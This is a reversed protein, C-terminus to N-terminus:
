GLFSIVVFSIVWVIISLRIKGDVIATRSPDDGENEVFLIQLYRIFGYIVILSTLFLYRSQTSTTYLIYCVIIISSLFVIIYNLFATNYGKISRRRELNKCTSLLESRRKGFALFLSLLFTILFLWESPLIEVVIGGAYIRLIFGSAIVFTDIIPFHKLRLSYILNILFYIFLILFLSRHFFFSIGLSTLFLIIALTIATKVKVKGSAIPRQRKIPHKKDEKKDCVDNVIYVSSTILSFLVFTILSHILLTPNLFEFGFFLPAFIFLNKVIQYLRVLQLYKM